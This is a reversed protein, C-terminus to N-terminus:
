KPKENWLRNPNALDPNTSRTRWVESLYIVPEEYPHAQYIADLAKKLVMANHLVSFSVVNTPVRAPVPPMGAKVTTGPISRSPM